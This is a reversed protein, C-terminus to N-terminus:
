NKEKLMDFKIWVIKDLMENQELIAIKLSTKKDLLGILFIICHVLDKLFIM